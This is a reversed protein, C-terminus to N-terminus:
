DSNGAAKKGKERLHAAMIKLAEIDDDNLGDFAGDYFAVKVGHLEAPLPNDIEGLLYAATTDLLEAIEPLKSHYSTNKGERWDSVTLAPVRLIKEFDADSPFKKAILETIREVTQAADVWGMIQARSLRLVTSLPELLDIPIKEIDGKEYRFVTARSIGLKEALYDASLGLEKRRQKIREGITM